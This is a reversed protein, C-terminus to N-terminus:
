KHPEFYGVLVQPVRKFHHVAPDRLVREIAEFQPKTEPLVM